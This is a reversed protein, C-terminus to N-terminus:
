CSSIRQEKKARRFVLHQHSHNGHHDYDNHHRLSWMSARWTWGKETPGLGLGTSTSTLTAGPPTSRLKPGAARKSLLSHEYLSTPIAAVATGPRLSPMGGRSECRKKLARSKKQDETSRRKIKQQDEKSRRNIKKQDETSRRKIKQQDETSRRKIKKQRRQRKRKGKGNAEHLHQPCRQPWCM